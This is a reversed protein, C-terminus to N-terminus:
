LYPMAVVLSWRGPKEGRQRWIVASVNEAHRSRAGVVLGIVQGESQVKRGEVEALIDGDILGVGLAAVGSLVLGGPHMATAGVPSAGPMVGASALRLVTDKGVYLGGAFESPPAAAKGKKSGRKKHPETAPAPAALAVAEPELIPLASPPRTACMSQLSAAAAGLEAGFTGAAAELRDPAFAASVPLTLPLLLFRRAFSL